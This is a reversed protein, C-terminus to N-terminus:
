HVRSTGDMQDYLLLDCYEDCFHVPVSGRGVFVFGLLCPKIEQSVNSVDGVDRASPAFCDTSRLSVTVHSLFYHLTHPRLLFLSLRCTGLLAVSCWSCAISM